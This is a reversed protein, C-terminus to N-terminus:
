QCKASLHWLPLELSKIGWAAGRCRARVAALRPYGRRCCRCRQCLGWHRDGPEIARALHSAALRFGIGAEFAARGGGLLHYGPDGGRGEVGGADAEGIRLTRRAEM